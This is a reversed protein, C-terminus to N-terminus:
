SSKTEGRTMSRVGHVMGKLYERRPMELEPGYM